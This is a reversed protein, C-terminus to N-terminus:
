LLSFFHLKKLNTLGAFDNDKFSPIHIHPLKLETVTALDTATIAACKKKLARELAVCVPKSRDCVNAEPPQFFSVPMLVASFLITNMRGGCSNPRPTFFRNGGCTM